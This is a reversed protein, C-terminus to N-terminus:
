RYAGWFEDASAGGLADSLAAKTAPDVQPPTDIANIIIATALADTPASGGARQTYVKTGAKVYPYLDAASPTVTPGKGNEIAYQDKASDM